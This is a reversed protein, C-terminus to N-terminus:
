SKRIMITFIVKKVPPVDKEWPRVYEFPVATEGERLGQLTWVDKGGMGVLGPDAKARQHGIEVVKIMSEDLKGAIRWGYGTTPNSDLVIVFEEGVKAEVLKAPDSSVPLGSRGEEAAHRVVKGQYRFLLVASLGAFIVAIVIRRKHTTGTGM